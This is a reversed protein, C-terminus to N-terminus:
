SNQSDGPTPVHWQLSPQLYLCTHCPNVSLPGTIALVTSTMSPKVEELSDQVRHTWLYPRNWNLSDSGLEFVYLQLFTGLLFLSSPMM